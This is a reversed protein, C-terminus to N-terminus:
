ESAAKAQWRSWPDAVKARMELEQALARWMQSNQSAVQAVLGLSHAPLSAIVHAPNAVFAANESLARLLRRGQESQRMSPDRLLKELTAAASPEVPGGRSKPKTIQEASEEQRGADAMDMRRPVPSEGRELRRRVDLATAPSVGVIRAVQRLSAEPHETMLQAVQMRGEAGNLPRVKGDRGLRMNLQPVADTSRRLEAVARSGLGTAKAVARDSMSPHSMLIRLAATHRDAQSLPLGHAVNAEVSRLFADEPSGDFFEVEIEKRGQLSAAMLRHVGDIVRMTRRDVLIPPLAHEIEALRMVHAKDEGKLRPSDGPILDMIPIAVATSKKGEQDITEKHANVGKGTSAIPIL